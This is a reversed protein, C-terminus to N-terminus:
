KQLSSYYNYIITVSPVWNKNIGKPDNEAGVPCYKSGIKEITNFGKNFYRNQLLDVIANLGSEFDRYSYFSNKNSNYLGGFNNKTKYLTSKWYGTEHASISVIILSQEETLGKELGKNYIACAM